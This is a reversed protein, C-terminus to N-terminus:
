ADFFWAERSIEVTEACIGVAQNGRGFDTILTRRLWISSAAQVPLYDPWHGIKSEQM